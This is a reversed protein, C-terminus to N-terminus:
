DNNNVEMRKNWDKVIDRMYEIVTTFTFPVYSSYIFQKRANCAPCLVAFELCCIGDDMVSRLSTCVSHGCFPCPKLDFYFPESFESFEIM